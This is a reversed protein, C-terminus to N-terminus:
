QLIFRQQDHLLTFIGCASQSFLPLGARWHISQMLGRHRKKRILLLACGRPNKLCRLHNPYLNEVLYLLIYKIFGLIFTPSNFVKQLMSDRLQEFPCAGVSLISMFLHTVICNQIKQFHATLLAQGSPQPKCVEAVSSFVAPESNTSTIIERSSIKQKTLM